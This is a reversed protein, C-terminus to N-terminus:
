STIQLNLLRALEAPNMISRMIQEIRVAKQPAISISFQRPNNIFDKIALMSSKTLEDKQMEMGKDIERIMSSKLESVSKNEKKAGYEMYREAFSDDEYTIDMNYVLIQPYTFLFKEMSKDDIAINGFHMKLSIKGADKLSMSFEKVDLDSKEMDYKYDIALNYKLDDKYGLEKLLKQQSAVASMDVNIGGFYISLHSPIRSKEDVSHIIVEDIDISDPMNKPRVTVESLTVDGGLLGVSVDKYKVDAAPALTELAAHIKVNASNTAQYKLIFYLALLSVAALAVAMTKKSM